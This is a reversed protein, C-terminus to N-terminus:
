GGHEALGRTGIPTSHSRARAVAWEYFEGDGEAVLALGDRDTLLQVDAATVVRAGAGPSPTARFPGRLWALALAAAMAAVPLWTRLRPRRTDTHARASRLAAHRAETLRSRVHGSVGSESHALLQRLRQEFGLGTDGPATM